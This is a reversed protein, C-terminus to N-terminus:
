KGASKEASLLGCAAQIDEGRSARITTIIGKQSLADRFRVMRANDPSVFRSGPSDHFRILNIRCKLGDLLRALGKIHEPSDNLGKLVIYEFSVRRQGTFDYSKLLEVVKEVPFAKEVPMIAAREASFPDHLSVAVHVRSKDLLEKLGGLIGVTSVTIRTPSWGYGWDSTLIELSKLVEAINDMPEGMGMYVMNTIRDREPISRLQNVIEGATLSHHLGQKGTVCFECGMRCGAQSSVCLTGREGDPIYVAEIYAGKLTPFLYKKTGDSSAAMDIPSFLGIEYEAELAERNRLSIDTMQAISRVSKGYLWVAMQRAAFRPMGLRSAVEGLEALTKGFLWEKMVFGNDWNCYDGDYKVAYLGSVM